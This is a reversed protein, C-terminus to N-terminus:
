DSDEGSESDEGHGESEETALYTFPDAKCEDYEATTITVLDSVRAAVAIGDDWLCMARPPLRKGNDNTPAYDVSQM